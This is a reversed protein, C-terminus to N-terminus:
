KQSRARDIRQILDKVMPNIQFPNLTFRQPPTFSIEDGFECPERLSLTVRKPNIVEIYSVNMIQTLNIKIEKNKNRILLYDGCDYVEDMLSFVLHKFLLGGILTMFLPMILAPLIQKSPNCYSAYLIFGSFILVFGIWFIPFLRKFYYTTKSNIQKM